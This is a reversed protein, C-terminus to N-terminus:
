PLLLNSKASLIVWRSTVVPKEYIELAEAVDPHDDNDAILHTVIDSMYNVLRGGGDVLIRKVEETDDVADCLCFNVGKFLDDRVKEQKPTKPQFFVLQKILSEFM